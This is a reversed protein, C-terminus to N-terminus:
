FEAVLLEGYGFLEAFVRALRHKEALLPPPSASWGSNPISALSCTGADRIGCPIIADFFSMDTCVNIALGHMTIRNSISIGVAAIKENGIWVGPCQERRRAELGFYRRLYEIPVAELLRVFSKVRHAYVGLNCLVYLVIQGPGHFTLRGGRGTEVVEAGRARLAAPDLLFDDEAGRRGSTYVPSHELLMLHDGAGAGDAALRRLEQQREYGAQYSLYNRYIEVNLPRSDPFFVKNLVEDNLM